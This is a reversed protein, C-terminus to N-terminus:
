AVIRRYRAEVVSYIGFTVLGLAVLGLFAPGFPRQQLEALAGGFGRAQTPDYRLAAQVLFLGVLCFVFGRAAIGFRGARVTWRQEAPSMETLRLYRKFTQAVARYLQVIGAIVVGIGVAVLLWRGYPWDLLTASWSRAQQDGSSSAAAEDIRGQVAAWAVGGALAAYALGSGFRATRKRLGRLSRGLHAPDFIAEVFRWTAYGALGAVILWLVLRSFQGAEAVAGSPGTTEGGTGLAEMLALVGILVYVVGRAVHGFRAWREIWARVETTEIDMGAASLLGRVSAGVWPM